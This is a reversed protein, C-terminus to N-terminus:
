NGRNAKRYYEEIVKEIDREIQSLSDELAPWGYRSARGALNDVFQQGQTTVRHRRKQLEGNRLRIVYERSIPRGKNVRGAMDAMSVAASQIIIKALPTTLSRGGPKIAQSISTSNPAYKKKMKGVPPNIGQGDWRLRGENIAYRGTKKYFVVAGMGSMPPTKPINQKVKKEIPKAIDRIKGRMENLLGPEIERLARNM